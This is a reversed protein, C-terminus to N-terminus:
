GTCSACGLMTKLIGDQIFKLPQAALQTGRASSPRCRSSGLGAKVGDNSGRDDQHDKEGGLDPIGM